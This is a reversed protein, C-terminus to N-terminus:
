QGQRIVEGAERLLDNIRQKCALLSAETRALPSANPPSSTEETDREQAIEETDREWEAIITAIVQISHFGGGLSGERYVLEWVRELRAVLDKPLEQPSIGLMAGAVQKTFLM